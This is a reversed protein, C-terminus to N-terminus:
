APCCHCCGANCGGPRRVCRRSRAAFAALVQRGLAVSRELVADPGDMAGTAVETRGHIAGGVTVGGAVKTGGIDFVLVPAANRLPMAPPTM